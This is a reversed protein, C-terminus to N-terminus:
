QAGRAALDDYLRQADRQIAAPIGDAPDCRTYFEDWAHNYDCGIKLYTSAKQWDYRVGRAPEVTFKEDYTCGGHFELDCVSQPTNFLPHNDYVLAYMTWVWDDTRKSCFILIGFTETKLIWEHRAQFAGMPKTTM